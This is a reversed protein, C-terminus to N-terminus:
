PIDRMHLPEDFASGGWGWILQPYVTISAQDTDSTAGLTVTLEVVVDTGNMTAPAEFSTVLAAPNAITITPAGNSVQAWLITTPNGTTGSGDLVVTTLPEVTQGGGASALLAGLAGGFMSLRSLRARRQEQVGTLKLRSLRARATSTSGTLKLRSLRARVPGAGGTLTLRSLRARSV